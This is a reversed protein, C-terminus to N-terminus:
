QETGRRSAEIMARVMADRAAPADFSTELIGYLRALAKMARERYNAISIVVCWHGRAEFRLAIDDTVVLLKKGSRWEEDQVIGRFARDYPVSPDPLAVAFRMGTGIPPSPEGILDGATAADLAVITAQQLHGAVLRTL